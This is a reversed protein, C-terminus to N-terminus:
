AHWSNRPIIGSINPKQKDSPLADAHREAISNNKGSGSTVEEQLNITDTLNRPEDVLLNQDGASPEMQEYDLPIHSERILDHSPVSGSLCVQKEFDEGSHFEEMSKQVSAFNSSKHTESLELDVDMMSSVNEGQLNIIETLDRQEEIPLIEDRFSPVTQEYNLQMHSEQMEDHLPINGTLCVRKQIKGENHFKELSRQVSSFNSSNDHAYALELDVDM